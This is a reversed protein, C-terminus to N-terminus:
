AELWKESEEQAASFWDGVIAEPEVHEGAAVKARAGAASYKILSKAGERLADYTLKVHAPEESCLLRRIYLYVKCRTAFPTSQNSNFKADSRAASTWLRMPSYPVKHGHEFMLVKSEFWQVIQSAPTPTSAATDVVPCVEPM